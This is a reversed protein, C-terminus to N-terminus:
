TLSVAAATFLSPRSSFLRTKRIMFVLDKWKSYDNMDNDIGLTDRTNGDVFFFRGSLKFSGERIGLYISGKRHFALSESVSFSPM